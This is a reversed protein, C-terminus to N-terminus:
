PFLGVLMKVLAFESRQNQRDGRDVDPVSEVDRHALGDARPLHSAAACRRLYVMARMQQHSGGDGVFPPLSIQLSSKATSACRKCRTRRLERLIRTSLLM